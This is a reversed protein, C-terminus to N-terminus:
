STENYPDDQEIDLGSDKQHILYLWYNVGGMLLFGIILLILKITLRDM